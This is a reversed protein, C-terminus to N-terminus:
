LYKSAIRWNKRSINRSVNKQKKEIKESKRFFNYFNKM